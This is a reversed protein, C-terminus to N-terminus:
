GLERDSGRGEPPPCASM